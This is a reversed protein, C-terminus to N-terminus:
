KVMRLVPNSTKRMRQIPDEKFRKLICPEVSQGTRLRCESRQASAKLSRM